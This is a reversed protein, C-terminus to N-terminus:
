SLWQQMMTSSARPNQERFSLIRDRIQRDLFRSMSEPSRFINRHLRGNRESWSWYICGQWCLLTLIGKPSRSSMAHLQELTRSLNREPTIGCRLAMVSWINWTYPCEFFLHNRSEPATNCLLCLPSTQLGWSIIRDRTPCRNLVFLWTLFNHRPIGGKNWVINCWTVAPGQVCLNAYVMGISYNQHVRGEIEWEYFDDENTLHITTLLAQVEVQRDSRAPPLLWTSNSHLSALTAMDQIGLSSNTRLQLFDRLNGYPSWNDTWFRCSFRRHPAVTWLNSLDGQLVEERSGLLGFLVLKPSSSGFSSSVAPKTGFLSTM